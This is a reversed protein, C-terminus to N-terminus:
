QCSVKASRCPTHVRFPNIYWATQESLGAELRYFELTAVENILEEVKMAQPLEPEACGFIFAIERQLRRKAPPSMGLDAALESDPHIRDVAIKLCAAIVAHLPRTLLEEM